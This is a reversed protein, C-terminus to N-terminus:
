DEQNKTNTALKDNLKNLAVLKTQNDVKLYKQTTVISSHGAIEKVVMTDGGAAVINSFCSHRLIHWCQGLPLTIGVLKCARRFARKSDRIPKGNYLFIRGTQGTYLSGLLATIENNMPVILLKREPRKSKVKFSIVGTRFDVDQWELKAMNQYRVGTNYLFIIQNRLHTPSVALLAEYQEQTIGSAMPERELLKHLRFNIPSVKVCWADKAVRYVGQFASMIRNITANTYPRNFRTKTQRLHGTFRKLREDTIEDLYCEDGFYSLLVKFRGVTTKATSTFKIHEEYHREAAAFLTM